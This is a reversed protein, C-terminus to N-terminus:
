RNGSDNRPIHDNFDAVSKSVCVHFLSPLTLQLLSRRYPFVDLGFVGALDQDQAATDVTGTQNPVKGQLSYATNQNVLVIEGGPGTRFRGAHNM